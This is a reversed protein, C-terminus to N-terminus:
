RIVGELMAYLATMGCLFVLMSAIEIAVHRM